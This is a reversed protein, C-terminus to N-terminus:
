HSQLESTHEESRQAAKSHDLRVGKGNDYLLGINFCVEMVGSDCEKQWRQINKQSNRASASVSFGLLGAVIFAIILVRYKM